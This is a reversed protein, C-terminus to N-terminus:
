ILDLAPDLARESGPALTACTLRLRRPDYTSDLEAFVKAATRLYHEILRHVTADPDRAVVADVIAHHEQGRRDWLEQTQGAFAVRYREAHDFFLSITAATREGGGAVLCAHFARHPTRLGAHDRRRMYHDMQALLGKLEAIAGSDLEPVTTRVAMAELAIRMAYLQEADDATLEAVRVQRNPESIVLGEHQLMRLAERLPTRGVDLDRALALQAKAAGAPIEGTLIERRLREHVLAVNQGDRTAKGDSASV